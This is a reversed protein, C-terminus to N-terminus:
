LSLCELKNAPTIEPEGKLALIINTYLAFLRGYLPNIEPARSPYAIPM